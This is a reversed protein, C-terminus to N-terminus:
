RLNYVCTDFSHTQQCTTMADHNSAALVLPAICAVLVGLWLAVTLARM